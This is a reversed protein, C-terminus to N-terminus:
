PCARESGPPLVKDIVHIVGNDAEIDAIVVRAPPGSGDAVSVAAGERTVCLVAGELLPTVATTGAPIDDSRIAGSAVHYLLINTLQDRNQPQLLSDLRGEPLAAFAENTPAFVTFPGDASLAENLGAAKIATVLTSFRADAAATEVVTAASASGIAGAVLLPALARTMWTKIAIM